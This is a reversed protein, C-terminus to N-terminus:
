NSRVYEFKGFRLRYAGLGIIQMKDLVDNVCAMTKEEDAMDLFAQKMGSRTSQESCTKYFDVAEKEKELAFGIIEKLKELEM